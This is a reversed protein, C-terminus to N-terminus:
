KTQTSTNQFRENKGTMSTHRKHQDVIETGNAINTRQYFLIQTGYERWLIKDFKEGSVSKLENKSKWAEMGELRKPKCAVYM